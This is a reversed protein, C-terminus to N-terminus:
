YKNGRHIKIIHPWRELRRKSNTILIGKRQNRENLSAKLITKQHSRYSKMYFNQVWADNQPLERPTNEHFRAAKINM